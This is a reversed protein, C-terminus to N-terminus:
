AISSHSSGADSDDDESLFGMQMMQDIMNAQFEVDTRKYEDASSEISSNALQAANQEIPVEEFASADKIKV